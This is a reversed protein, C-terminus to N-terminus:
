WQDFMDKFDEYCEKCVWYYADGTAYGESLTDPINDSFKEWCFSCHDHDWSPRPAKYHKWVLPVNLYKQQNKLRWDNEERM